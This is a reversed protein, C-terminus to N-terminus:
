KKHIGAFNACCEVSHKRVVDDFVESAGLLFQHEENVEIDFPGAVGKECYVMLSITEKTPIEPDEIMEDGENDKDIDEKNETSNNDKSKMEKGGKSKLDKDKKNNGKKPDQINPDANEKDETPPSPEPLNEAMKFICQWVGGLFMLCSNIKGKQLKLNLLKSLTQNM